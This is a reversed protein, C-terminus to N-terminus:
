HIVSNLRIAFIRIVQSSLSILHRAPFSPSGEQQGRVELVGVFRKRREGILLEFPKSPLSGYIQMRGAEHLAQRRMGEHVQMIKHRPVVALLAFNLLRISHFPWQSTCYTYFRTYTKM